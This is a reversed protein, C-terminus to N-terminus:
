NKHEDCAVFRWGNKEQLQGLKGCASCTVASLKSYRDIISQEYDSINYGYVRLTGYKEKIDTFIPGDTEDEMHQEKIESLMSRILTIWGPCVYGSTHQLMYGYYRELIELENDIM